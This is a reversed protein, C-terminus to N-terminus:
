VGGSRWRRGSSCHQSRVRPGYLKTSRVPQKFGRKKFLQKTTRRKDFDMDFVLDCKQTDPLSHNRFWRSVWHQPAHPGSRCLRHAGGARVGRPAGRGGSHCPQARPEARRFEAAASGRLGAGAATGHLRLDTGARPTCQFFSNWWVNVNGGGDHCTHEQSLPVARFRTHRPSTLFPQAKM